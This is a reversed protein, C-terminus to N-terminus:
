ILWSHEYGFAKFKAVASQSLGCFMENNKILNDIENLTLYNASLIGEKKAEESLGKDKIKGYEDYDILIAFVENAKQDAYFSTLPNISGLYKIKSTVSNTEETLERKATEELPEDGKAFGRPFEISVVSGQKGIESDIIVDRVREITGLHAGDTYFYFPVIISGPQEHIEYKDFLPEDKDNCVVVRKISGFKPNEIGAESSKWGPKFDPYEKLVEELPRIKM